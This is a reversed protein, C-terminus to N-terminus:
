VSVGDGDVGIERGIQRWYKIIAATSDIITGDMDFLLIDFEHVESPAAFANGSTQTMKSRSLLEFGEIYLLNGLLIQTTSLRPQSILSSISDPFEFALAAHGNQSVM